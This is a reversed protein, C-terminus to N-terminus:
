RSSGAAPPERVLSIFHFPFTVEEIPRGTQDDLRYVKGSRGFYWIGRGDPASSFCEGDSKPLEPAPSRNMERLTSADWVAIDNESIAFLRSGDRSPAPGCLLRAFREVPRAKKSQRGTAAPTVKKSETWTQLVTRTKYQYLILDPAGGKHMLLVLRGGPLAVLQDLSYAPPYSRQIAPIYIPKLDFGAAKAVDNARIYGVPHNQPDLAVADGGVVFLNRSQPDYVFRPTQVKLPQWDAPVVPGEPFDGVVSHRLLDLIVFGTGRNGLECSFYALSTVPQVFIRDLCNVARIKLSSMNIQAEVKLDPASVRMVTSEGPEADTLVVADRAGSLMGSDMRDVSISRVVRLTHSDLEYLRVDGAQAKPPGEQATPGGAADGIAYFVSNAQAWSPSSPALTITIALLLGRLPAIPM